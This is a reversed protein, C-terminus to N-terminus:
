EILLDARGRATMAPSTQAMWDQHCALPLRSIDPVATCHNGCIIKWM